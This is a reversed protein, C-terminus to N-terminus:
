HHQTRPEGAEWWAQAEKRDFPPLIAKEIRANALVPFREKMVAEDIDWRDGIIVDFTSSRSGAIADIIPANPPGARFENGERKRTVAEVHGLYYVGPSTVEFKGHVPVTFVGNFPVTGSRAFLDHVIYTGPGLQMRLYYTNGIAPDHSEDMSAADLKYTFARNEKEGLKEIHLFYAKPQHSPRGPNRATVSMLYYACTPNISTDGWFAM